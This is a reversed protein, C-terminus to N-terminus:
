YLRPKQPFSTNDKSKRLSPRPPNLNFGSSQHSCRRRYRSTSITNPWNNRTWRTSPTPANRKPWCSQTAQTSVTELGISAWTTLSPTSTLLARPQTSTPSRLKPKKRPSMRQHITDQRASTHWSAAKLQHDSQRGLLSLNSLSTKVYTSSPKTRTSRCTLM